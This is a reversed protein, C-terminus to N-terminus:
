CKVSIFCVFLCFLFEIFNWFMSPFTFYSRLLFWSVFLLRFQCANVIVCGQEFEECLLVM